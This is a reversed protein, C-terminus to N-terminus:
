IKNKYNDGNLLDNTLNKYFGRDIDIRPSSVIIKTIKSSYPQIASAQFDM